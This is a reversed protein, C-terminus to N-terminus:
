CLTTVSTLVNHHGARLFGLLNEFTLPILFTNGQDWLPHSTLQQLGTWINYLLRLGEVLDAQRGCGGLHTPSLIIIYFQSVSFPYFNSKVLIWHQTLDCSAPLVSLQKFQLSTQGFPRCFAQLALQSM